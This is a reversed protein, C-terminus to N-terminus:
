DLYTEWCDLTHWCQTERVPPPTYLLEPDVEGKLGGEWWVNLM